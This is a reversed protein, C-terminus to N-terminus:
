ETISCVPYPTHPAEGFLDLFVVSGASEVEQGVMLGAGIILTIIAMVVLLEVLTFGRRNSGSHLQGAVVVSDGGKIKSTPLTMKRAM